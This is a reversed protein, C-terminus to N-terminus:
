KRPAAKAGLLQLLRNQPRATLAVAANEVNGVHAALALESMDEVAFSESEREADTAAHDSGHEPVDNADNPDHHARMRKTAKKTVGGALFQQSLAKGIYQLNKSKLEVVLGHGKRSAPTSLVRM